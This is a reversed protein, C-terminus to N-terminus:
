RRKFLKDRVVGESSKVEIFYTGSALNALGTFSIINLGANATASMTRVLKGSVDYLDVTCKEARVLTVAMDVQDRFPNPYVSNITVGTGDNKIAVTNSYSSRADIDVLKLRYYNIGAPPDRHIFYYDSRVSSFGKAALTGIKQFSSNDTRQELEFRSSRTEQSTSWQLLNDKGYRKGTFSLLDVPLLSVQGVLMYLTANSCLPQPNVATVDCLQYVVQDPGLYNFPPTYTCTGNSFLIINGGMLTTLNQAPVPAGGTNITTGNVSMADNNPDLDNQIYNATIPTNMKTIMFDDGNFPPDNQAGNTNALIDIHLVSSVCATPLGNDCITYPIDVQGHFDAAPTFSFDGNANLVFSGANSVPKRTLTTGGITATAGPAASGDAVGDGDTDFQFGTVTFNDGQPDRDNVLINGTVPNGYSITEDNNSIVSNGASKQPNVTIKLTATDIAANPNNDTIIYSVTAIGAFNTVPTFTYNGTADFSLTGVNGVAGGSLDTGGLTMSGSLRTAGLKDIYGLFSISEGERDFDNVLVGGSVPMNLWTSNQDNIANTTNPVIINFSLTATSCLGPAAACTAPNLVIDCIQYTLIDTGFFGPNPIYQILGNPMVQATGHLPNVTIVPNTLANEDPDFDNDIVSYYVTEDMNTSDSVDDVAVPPNNPAPTITITVTAPASTQPPNGNDTVTYTFTVVGTFGMAPTFKVSGDGNDTIAGAAPNSLASINTVTLANGEADSDNALLTIRGAQCPLGNKVDPNAIPARNLVTITLLATDCYANGCAAPTPECVVYHLTDTGTFGANPTYVVQNSGNLSATGNPPQSILTVTLTAGEPDVDNALIDITQVMGSNQGAPNDDNANVPSNNVLVYVKVVDSGNATTVTYEFSAVGNFLPNPTFTVTGGPNAVATGQAAIPATSITLSTVAQGFLNDNNVVNFLIPTNSFTTATDPNGLPARAPISVCSVSTWNLTLKPRLAPNTNVDKDYYRVYYVAATQNSPDKLLVGFNNAPASLWGQVLNTLAWTSSISSPLVSTSGQVLPNFTGGATTWATGSLRNNWTMQTETWNQTIEYASVTIGAAPLVNAKVPMSLSASTLNAGAPLTSGNVPFKLMTFNRTAGNNDNGVWNDDPNWITNQSGEYSYSDETADLVLSGSTGTVTYTVALLPQNATTANEKSAFIKNQNATNENTFKLLMGFNNAPITYWSNVMNTVSWNYTGTTSVITSSEATANYDGGATTWTNVGSYQTWNPSGANGTGTGELWDRTMPHVDINFGTNTQVNTAVMQLNATTITAGAPLSSLDFKLIARNVQSTQGDISFTSNAGFNKGPNQFDLYTDNTPTFYVTNTVTVPTAVQYTGGDCADNTVTVTVTATKSYGVANVLRYTFNDTGAFDPNPIYTISNDTNISVKGNLPGNFIASVKLPGQVVPVDNALVNINAINDEAITVADNSTNPVYAPNGVTITYTANSCLPVPTINNCVTYTLTEVGTFGPNPSYTVNGAATFSMIGNSPATVNTLTMPRGSPEVDNALVNYTLSVGGCGPDMTRADNVANPTLPPTFTVRVPRFAIRQCNDSVKCTIVCNAPVGAPPATFSTTDGNPNSFTGGCSSVWQYTLTNGPIPSTAIVRLGTITTSGPIQQGPTIGTVSVQPVKATTQFFSFNLFARQAAVGGSNVKNQNHGAMYMVYGRNPDDFARGYVMVVAANRLDPNVAAVNSQSPDYSLITAGPNWRALAGQRPVYIQESGNQLAADPLGMFQAMPDSPFRHIYPPSGNSHTTWLKLDNSNAYSGSVGTFGPDKVTLFNTQQNRNAPNVMNELASVAHCSSWISGLCNLNWNLLNGHTSWIPDAHPMVFFDDCCDLSQPNKWNYAGPFAALTIGANTLFGQVIAGNRSDLTWRPYSTLTKTVDVTLPSVTTAGVVGQGTWYTIRANVAASRYEAPIIFTGGKYQVGNYSFDVGDKVKSQSIVWKVAVSYNRIMDYILGYPKLGNAITNPNTAGMNIIFSGTPFTESQAVSLLSFLQMAIVVLIPRATKLPLSPKM